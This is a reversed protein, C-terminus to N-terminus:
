PRELVGIVRALAAASVEKDVIVRCGGPLIIEILGPLRPASQDKIAEGHGRPTVAPAGSDAIEAPAIVAPIFAASGVGASCEERRFQRRWTFLLNANLDHRRAVMSVSAGPAEAEAVMRRKEEESWRRRGNPRSAESLDGRSTSFTM